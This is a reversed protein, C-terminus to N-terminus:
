HEQPQSSRRSFLCDFRSAFSAKAVYYFNSSGEQGGISLELLAPLNVLELASYNSFAYRDIRIIQLSECNSIQLRRNALMNMSNPSSTFANMGVALTKLVPLRDVIFENTAPFSNAGITLSELMEFTNMKLTTYQFPSFCHSASVELNYLYWRSTVPLKYYSYCSHLSLSGEKTYLLINMVLFGVLFYAIVTAVLLYITTLLRCCCDSLCNKVKKKRGRKNCCRSRRKMERGTEFDIVVKGTDLLGRDWEGQYAVEGKPNLLVGNGQPYNDSWIGRYFPVQDRFYVGNGHRVGDLFEGKYVIHDNEYEKGEGSRCFGVIYDGSFDGEYVKKQNEDYETMKHKKFERVVRVLTNNAYICEKKVKGKKFEFCIGDKMMGNPNFQGICLTVGKQKEEMFGKKKKVPEFTVAPEGDVFAGKYTMEGKADYETGEGDRQIDLLSIMKYDGEYKKVGNEYYEIMQNGVFERIVYQEANNEMWSEKELKGDKYFFCRGKKFSRKEDYEAICKLQRSEMAYENYFGEMTANEELLPIREGNQYFGYFVEHGENDYEHCEGEKHGDKMTGRFIVYYNDNRLICDGNLKDDVFHLNAVIMNDENVLTADGEQKGNVCGVVLKFEKGNRTYYLTSQGEVVRTSKAPDYVFDALLSTNAVPEMLHLSILVHQVRTVFVSM